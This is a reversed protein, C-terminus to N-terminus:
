RGEGGAQERLLPVLELWYFRLFPEPQEEFLSRVSDAPLSRPALGQWPPPGIPRAVPQADVEARAKDAVRSLPELPFLGSRWPKGDVEMELMKQAEQVWEDVTRGKLFPTPDFEDGPFVVTDEPLATVTDETLLGAYWLEAHFFNFLGATKASDLSSGVYASLAEVAQSYAERKGGRDTQRRKLESAMAETSGGLTGAFSALVRENAQQSVVFASAAGDLHRLLGDLQGADLALHTLLAAARQERAGSPTREPTQAASQGLALLLVTGVLTHLHPRATM